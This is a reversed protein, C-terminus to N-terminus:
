FDPCIFYPDVADGGESVWGITGWSTEIQWWSQNDACQPGGIVIFGDGPTIVDMAISSMGASERIDVYATQTCVRGRQGSVMRQPPAGPCSSTNPLIPAQFCDFASITQTAVQDSISANSDTTGLLQYTVGSKFEYPLHARLTGHNDTLLSGSWVLTYNETYEDYSPSNEYLLVYAPSNAPFGEGIAHFEARSSAPHCYPLIQDTAPIDELHIEPQGKNGAEFDGTVSGGQWTMQIMWNGGPLGGPWWFYVESFLNGSSDDLGSSGGDWDSWTLGRWGDPNATVQFNGHLSRSGDASVMTVEFPRDAPFGLLCLYAMRPLSQIPLGYAPGSIYAGSAAPVPGSYTELDPCHSSSGGGGGFVLLDDFDPLPPLKTAGQLAKTPPSINPEVLSPQGEFIYCGLILSVVFFLGGLRVLFNKHSM